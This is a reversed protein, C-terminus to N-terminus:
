RVGCILTNELQEWFTPGRMPLQLVQNGSTCCYLMLAVFNWLQWNLPKHRIPQPM